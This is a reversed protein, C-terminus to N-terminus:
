VIEVVVRELMLDLGMRSAVLGSGNGNRSPLVGGEVPKLIAEIEFEAVLM